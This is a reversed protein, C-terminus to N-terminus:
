VVGSLIWDVQEISDVVYVACDLAMLRLHERKQGENPKKGQAKVEIFMIVGKPFVCLRDPVNVRQPSVFKYPIGNRKEVEKVLYKEIDSEKM